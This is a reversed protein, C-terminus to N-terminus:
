KDHCAQCIDDARLRHEPQRDASDSMFGHQNHCTSCYIEGTEALLPLVVGTEAEFEQMNMSVEASPVVLHVWEDSSGGSFMNRPHAAVNHCGRCTDNLDHQMNFKVNIEGTTGSEPVEAHCMMCTPKPPIGAVGDHPNLKEYMTADHCKACYRQTYRTTRDRLFGPNEYSYQIRAHKCQYVIDHCTSCVVQGDKLAPQLGAEIDMTGVALGSGHRCSIADGRDGHCTECLAEADPARLNVM